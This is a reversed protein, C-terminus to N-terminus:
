IKWKKLITNNYKSTITDIQNQTDEKLIIIKKDLSYILKVNKEM